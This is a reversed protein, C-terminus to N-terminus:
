SDWPAERAVCCTGWAPAEGERAHGGTQTGGVVLM